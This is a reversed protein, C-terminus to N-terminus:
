SEGGVIKTVVAGSTASLYATLGDVVAKIEAASMGVAPQDITFNVSTSYKTNVDTQFPDPAVKDFTLKVNRRVRSGYTHRVAMQVVGDASRFTGNADGMGTRPLPYSTGSITITQPDALAM